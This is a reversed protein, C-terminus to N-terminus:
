NITILVNIIHIIDETEYKLEHERRNMERPIVRSISNEYCAIKM